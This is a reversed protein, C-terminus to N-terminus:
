THTPLSWAEKDVFVDVGTESTIAAAPIADGNLWSSVVALKNRGTVLFFVQRANSLAQTSLSVRQAPAKPADNVPVVSGPPHEQGPFLSATHGDEGLGLLVIDFPMVSAIVTQYAQAAADPGREAPIVYIQQRPIGVHQLWTKDAIRSNREANEPPLCREDGFYIDWAAWEAYAKALHSYIQKPTNGGALVIKFRGRVHIAEEAIRLLILAARKALADTDSYIHWRTAHEAPDTM